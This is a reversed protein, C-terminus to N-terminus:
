PKKLRLRRSRKRGKERVKQIDMIGYHPWIGMASSKGERARADVAGIREGTRETGDSSSAGDGAGAGAGAASLNTRPVRPGPGRRLWICLIRVDSRQAHRAEKVNENGQLRDTGEEAMKTTRWGSM